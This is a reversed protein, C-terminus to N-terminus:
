LGNEKVEMQLCDILEEIDEQSFREVLIKALGDWTWTEDDFLVYFMSGITNPMNLELESENALIAAVDRKKSM